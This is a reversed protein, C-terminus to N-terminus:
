EEQFCWKWKILVFMKALTGNTEALSISLQLKSTKINSADEVKLLSILLKGAKFWVKVENLQVTEYQNLIDQM